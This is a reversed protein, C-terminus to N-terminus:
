LLDKDSRNKDDGIGNFLYAYAKLLRFTITIHGLLLLAYISFVVFVGSLMKIFTKSDIGSSAYGPQMRMADKYMSAVLEPHTLITIANILVMVGFFIAVFANVRIWDRLSKKVLRGRRIGDRYFYFSTFTYIIVATLLFASLFGAPNAFSLLILFLDALGLFGAVALLIVSVVRYVPLLKEM